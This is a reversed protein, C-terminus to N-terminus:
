IHEVTVKLVAKGEDDMTGYLKIDRYSKTVSGNKAKARRNYYYDFLRKDTSENKSFRGLNFGNDYTAYSLPVFWTIAIRSDTGELRYTITGSTGYFSGWKKSVVFKNGSQSSIRYPVGQINGTDIYTKPEILNYGTNNQIAIVAVRDLKRGVEKLQEVAEEFVPSSGQGKGVGRKALLKGQTTTPDEHKIANITQSNITIFNDKKTDSFDESAKTQIEYTVSPQFDHSNNGRAQTSAPTLITGGLISVMAASGFLARHLNIRTKKFNM